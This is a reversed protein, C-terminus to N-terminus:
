RVIKYVEYRGERKWLIPLFDQIFQYHWNRRLVPCCDVILGDYKLKIWYSNNKTKLIFEGNAPRTTKYTHM